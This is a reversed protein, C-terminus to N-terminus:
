ALGAHSSIRIGGPLQKVPPNDFTWMGEEAHIFPAAALLIAAPLAVAFRFSRKIM